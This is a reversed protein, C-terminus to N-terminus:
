PDLKMDEFAMQHFGVRRRHENRSGVTSSTSSCIQSPLLTTGMLYLPPWRLAYCSSWVGPFPWSERKQLQGPQSADPQYPFVSAEWSLAATDSNKGSNSLIAELHMLYGTALTPRGIIMKMRHGAGDQKPHTLHLPWIGDIYRYTLFGM